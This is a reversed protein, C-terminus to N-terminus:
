KSLGQIESEPVSDVINLLPNDPLVVIRETLVKRQQSDYIIQIKPRMPQDAFTEIVKGIANSNLRVYSHIPFLTFISLMSKLHQRQFRLKCTNIVEKVATYHTLKDRQPRSHILAEYMDLLGIIQAYEHIEDGKLGRPYGSGDIREYVQAATEALHAFGDGFSRLINYSYNPRNRLIDIEQRSLEEQKYLIKDPIVAMGVDHLLAAMALEIKRTQDFGLDDAMRLSYIAVNISHHIVYKFRDDLHIAMIFLEDQPHDGEAMKQLIRFGPELAFIRRNKAASLVQNLYESSKEYLGKRNNNINTKPKANRAQKGSLAQEDRKAAPERFSLKRFSLKLDQKAQPSSNNQVENKMNSYEVLGM